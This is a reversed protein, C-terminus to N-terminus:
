QNMRISQTFVVVVLPHKLDHFAIGLCVIDILRFGIGMKTRLQLLVELCRPSLGRNRALFHLIGPQMVAVKQTTDFKLRATKTLPRPKGSDAPHPQVFGGVKMELCLRFTSEYAFGSTKCASRPHSSPIM